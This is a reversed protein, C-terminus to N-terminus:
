FEFIIIRSNRRKQMNNVGNSFPRINGVDFGVGDDQIGVRLNKEIDITMLVKGARAHKVINHLAEKITLYINRRFEGSVFVTPFFLGLFLSAILIITTQPFSKQYDSKPRSIINANPITAAESIATEEKKQLLYLYLAQKVSQERTLSVFQREQVPVNNVMNRMLANESEIKQQTIELNKIQSQLSKTLDTRLNAIQTELNQSLPNNESVSLAFRDREILLTNYKQVLALFTPDSNLISPVPRTNTKTDQIYQLTTRAINLQVEVEDLKQNYTSTNDILVRSQESLDAIKNGQKFNQIQEEIANLDSNVIVIRSNIFALSSDSIRNKENLDRKMYENILESLFNEGKLPVNTKYSLDLITADGNYIEVLLDKPINVLVADISTLTLAYGADDFARGTRTFYLKGVPTRITDNFHGAFSTDILDNSMSMNFDNKRGLDKFEIDCTTALTSDNKPVFTVTFPTKNYLEVTKIGSKVFYKVNLHMNRAVKEELDHSQLIGLENYVNTQLGFLDGFDSMGSQTGLLSSSTKSGGQDDQILIQAYVNYSPTAYWSYFFGLLVFGIISVAFLKWNDLLRSVIKKFNFADEATTIKTNM